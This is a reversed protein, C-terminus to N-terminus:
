QDNFTSNIRGSQVNVNVTWSGSAKENSLVLYCEAYKKNNVFMTAKPFHFGIDLYRLNQGDCIIDSIFIDNELYKKTDLLDDEAQYGVELKDGYVLYYNEDQNFFIGYGNAPIETKIKKGTFAMNQVARISDEIDFATLRFNISKESNKYDVLGITFIIMFVSIAVMVEILTFCKQSKIKM